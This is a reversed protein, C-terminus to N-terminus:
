ATRVCEAISKKSNKDAKGVEQNLADVLAESKDDDVMEGNSLIYWKHDPKPRGLLGLPNVLEFVVNDKEGHCRSYM